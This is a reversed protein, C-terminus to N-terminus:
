SAYDSQNVERKVAPPLHINVRVAFLCGRREGGGGGGWRWGWMEEEEEKEGDSSTLPPRRRPSLSFISVTASEGTFRGGDSSDRRM